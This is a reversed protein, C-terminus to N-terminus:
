KVDTKHSLRIIEQIDDLIHDPRYTLLIEKSLFGYTVAITKMGINKGTIIDHGTDGIIFDNVGIKFNDLILEKKSTKHETVFVDDFYKSLCLIELQVLAMSISQRASTLYLKNDTKLEKLTEYVGDFVVDKELYEKTEILDLWKKEFVNFTEETYKFKEMLIKQHNIKNRKLKWYDDITLNSEPVLYQFLDYLRRRANILTGDLDFFLRPEVVKM